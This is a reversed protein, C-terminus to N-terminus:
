VVSHDMLDSQSTTQSQTKTERSNIGERLMKQRVQAERVKSMPERKVDTGAFHLKQEKGQVHFLEEQGSGRVKSTPYSREAM